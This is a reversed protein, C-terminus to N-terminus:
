GEQLAPPGDPADARMTPGGELLAHVILRQRASYEPHCTTLTLYAGSPPADAPALPTPSIVSVDTPAVIQRGPVAGTDVNGTAPDGIVRYVYWADATEVVIPDGPELEDLELFPSGRGVRHGAVAFNGQQGPLATGVYHGPGQALEDQGTGEVIAREWGAGLEPIHLFAFPEGEVPILPAPAAGAVAGDWGDRLEEQLEDQARGTLIDTVYLEYVVFLLLVFGVTLLLQGLGRLGTRVLDGARSV